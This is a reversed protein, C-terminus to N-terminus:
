LGSVQYGITLDRKGM